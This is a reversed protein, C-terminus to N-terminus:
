EELARKIDNVLRETEQILDKEKEFLTAKINAPVAMNKGLYAEIKTDLNIIKEIDPATRQNAEIQLLGHLEDQWEVIRKQHQNVQLVIRKFLYRQAVEDKEIDKSYVLNVDESAALADDDYSTRIFCPFDNRIARIAVVLDEGNYGLPAADSLNFDTVLADVQLDLLQEVANNINPDPHLLHIDDFFESQYADTYFNAREDEVEDVYAIIPRHPPEADTNNSPM